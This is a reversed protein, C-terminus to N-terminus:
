TRRLYGALAPGERQRLVVAVHLQELYQELTKGGLDVQRAEVFARVQEEWDPRTLGIVGEWLRRLGMVPYAEKMREWSARLFDWAQARSHVGFLMGRLLLPADQTRVEGDLTMALTRAVLAEEEFAGLAHLYRQEEQPTRAGKFRRVFDEYREAGGVHALVVIAAALVGPDTPRGADAAAFVKQAEAQVGRDDGLVGAARLLDARLQGTLEDEGPKPEWGLEAVAPGVRRRVLARLGPRDEEEIIRDLAAFSGLLVAWVNRDREGEFRATLELYDALPTLGALVAAWADNVLGFREIAALEGLRGLLRLLLGPEYRVRYFGHGGENVLVADVDPPLVVRAESDALLLKRSEPGRPTFLRLQVPVQWRGNAHPTGHDAPLYSFRHQSLVLAAGDRRASVLPYGPRFIWGDMIDPIALRAPGALAHWLDATETNGFAHKELYARVGARFVDPGVYQELMRLVSAGKEYTLVDFMADADRPASVPYEIARTSWLGDVTLAASRSVGFTTWRQWAPKWADVALMEMFTAFAENLWLGNWWAMTVLDGFWLHANEHAVVDAVREKEQHTASSEDVLLATERFTIAGFNEMAGAAFDPIAILDLKDGPYKRGYYDELFGLSFAGVEQGFGALHKKGPVCWVRLPTRGVPTPGSAELEGVIFAVLYTSMPITDAFRVIRKGGEDRTEAVATNSLAVLGPPVVLTSSFVAKFSPEDWCPFARRADTAEFQTAALYRWQGRADKYRSRYFGRLKDNLTGAFSLRLDVKGPPLPEEFALRCRETKEDFTVAAPRWRGAEDLAGAESVTLEAANLWVESTPQGVAAHVVVQGAFTAADLDPELRLEYRSPVITRPLRYPDV